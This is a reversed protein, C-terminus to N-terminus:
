MYWSVWNLIKFEIVKFVKMVVLWLSKRGETEFVM